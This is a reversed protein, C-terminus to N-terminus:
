GDPSRRWLAMTGPMRAGLGNGLLRGEREVAGEGSVTSIVKAKDGGTREPLFGACGCHCQDDLFEASGGDAVGLADPIHGLADGPGASLAVLDDHDDGGHGPDGVAEDSEGLLDGGEGGLALHVHEEGGAFLLGDGEGGNGEVGEADGGDGEGSGLGADDGIADMGLGLDAVNGGGLDMLEEIGAINHDDGTKLALGVIALDGGEATASGVEGGDGEGGGELGIEALDVGVDITDVGGIGPDHRGRLLKGLNGIVFHEFQRPAPAL